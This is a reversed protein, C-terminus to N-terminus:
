CWCRSRRGSAWGTRTSASPRRASFPFGAYNLTAVMAVGVSPAVGGAESGASFFVPVANALGLGVLGFGLATM